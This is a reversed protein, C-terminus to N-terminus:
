DDDGTGVYVCNLFRQGDKSKTEVCKWGALKKVAIKRNVEEATADAPLRQATHVEEDPM